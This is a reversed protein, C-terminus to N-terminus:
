LFRVSCAFLDGALRDKAMTSYLEQSKQLSAYYGLHSHIRTMARFRTWASIGGVVDYSHADWYRPDERFDEVNEVRM